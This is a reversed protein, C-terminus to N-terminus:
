RSDVAAERGIRGLILGLRFLGEPPSGTSARGPTHRGSVEHAPGVGRELQHSECVRGAQRTQRSRYVRSELVAPYQLWRPVVSSQTSADPMMEMAVRGDCLAYDRGAGLRHKRLWLAFDPM